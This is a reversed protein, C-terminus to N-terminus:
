LVPQFNSETNSTCTFSPMFIINIFSSSLCGNLKDIVAAMDLTASRSWYKRYNPKIGTSGQTKRDEFMSRVYITKSLECCKIEYNSVSGKNGTFYAQLNHRCDKKLNELSQFTRAVTNYYLFLPKRDHGVM